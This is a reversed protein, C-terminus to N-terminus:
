SKLTQKKLKLLLKMAIIVLYRLRETGWPHLLTWYLLNAVEALCVVETRHAAQEIVMRRRLLRWSRPQAMYPSRSSGLSFAM